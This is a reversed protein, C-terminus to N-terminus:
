TQNTRAVIHRLFTTYRAILDPWQYHADVYGHGREGMEDRLGASALLHDLAVELDPYSTFALGGGSRDVHERTVACLGNVM